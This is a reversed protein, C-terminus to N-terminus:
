KSQKLWYFCRSQCIQERRNFFAFQIKDDHEKIVSYFSRLANRTEHAIAIDTIADLIPKDYEDVLIVVKKKYKAQLDQILFSFQEPYSKGRLNIEYMEANSLLLSTIKDEVRYEATQQQNSAFSIHIM